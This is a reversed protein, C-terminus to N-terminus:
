LDTLNVRASKEVTIVTLKMFPITKIKLSEIKLNVLYNVCYAKRKCLLDSRTFYSYLNYNELLVKM